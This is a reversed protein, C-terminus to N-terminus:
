LVIIAHNKSLATSTQTLLFDYRSNAIREHVRAIKHKVKCWNASYKVKRPWGFRFVCGAQAALLSGDKGVIIYAHYPRM